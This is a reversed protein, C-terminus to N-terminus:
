GEFRVAFVYHLAPEDPADLQAFPVSFRASYRGATKRRTANATKVQIRTVPENVRDRFAFLDEGVDVEPIAVNRQRNLLEAVVALQGSRGTYLDRTLRKRGASTARQARRRAM